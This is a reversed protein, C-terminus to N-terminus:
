WRVGFTVPILGTTGLGWYSTDKPGPTKIWVYRAEAFLKAKQDPGLAHTFGFGINLGGQNSSFHGVTANTTCPYYIGYYYDYCYQEVPTTFTTVKRYFGGGGTVYANTAGKPRLYFIPDLTFSWIHAHGGLQGIGSGNAVDSLFKGPLKNDMFQYELLMGFQPNFQYGGGLTFNGGWTIYPNDNGIPANFGGGAEFALHSWKDQYGSYTRRNGGYGGNGYQPTPTAAVDAEDEAAANYAASSSFSAENTSQALLSTAGALLAVACGAVVARRLFGDFLFASM